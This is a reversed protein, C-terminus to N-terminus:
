PLLNFLLDAGKRVGKQIGRHVAQFPAFITKPLSSNKKLKKQEAEEKNLEEELSSWPIPSTPPPVKSPDFGGGLWHAFSGLFAGPIGGDSHLSLATLRTVAKTKDLSINSLSGSIPLLLFYGPAIDSLGYGTRLAMASVAVTAKIHDEPIKVRGWFAIPYRGALLADTRQLRLKGHDLSFFLPTVLVSFGKHSKTLKKPLLKAVTPNIKPLRITIEDLAVSLDQFGADDWNLFPLKLFSNEPSLTISLYGHPEELHGGFKILRSLLKASKGLEKASETPEKFLTLPIKLMAPKQLTYRLTKNQYLTDLYLEVGSLSKLQIQIDRTDLSSTCSAKLDCRNGLLWKSLTYTEKQKYLAINLLSTPLQKGTFYCTFNKQGELTGKLSGELTFKPHIDEKQNLLWGELQVQWNEDLFGYLQLPIKTESPVHLLPFLDVDLSFFRGEQKFQKWSTPLPGNQATLICKADDYLAWDKLFPLQQQLLKMREPGVNWELKGQTLHPPKSSPLDCNFYGNLGDGQIFLEGQPTQANGAHTSFTCALASGFFSAYPLALPGTLLMTEHPFFAATGALTPISTHLNFDSLSLLIKGLPLTFQADLPQSPSSSLRDCSLELPSSSGHVKVHVPHLLEITKGLSLEIPDCYLKSGLFLIRLLPSDELKAPESLSIHLALTDGVLRQVDHDRKFFLDLLQTPLTELSLELKHVTGAELSTPLTYQGLSTLASTKQNWKLPFKANWDVVDQNFVFTAESALVELPIAQTTLSLSLPDMRMQLSGTLSVHDGLRQEQPRIALQPTSFSFLCPDETTMQSGVFTALMPFSQALLTPTAIWQVPKQTSLILEQEALALHGSAKLFPSEWEIRVNPAEDQPETQLTCDYLNGVAASVFAKKTPHRIHLLADLILSPFAKMKLNFSLRKEALAQLADLNTQLLKRPKKPTYTIELDLKGPTEQPMGAQKAIASVNCTIPGKKAPVNLLLVVNKLEVQQEPAVKCIFSSGDVHLTGYFPIKAQRSARLYSPILPYAWKDPHASRLSLIASAGKISTVGICRPCFFLSGPRWTSDLTEIYFTSKARKDIVSLGEIHTDAFWNLSCSKWQVEFRTLHRIVQQVCYGGVRTSVFFPLSFLLLFGVWLSFLSSRHKAAWSSARQWFTM